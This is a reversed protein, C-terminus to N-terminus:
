RKAYKISTWPITGKWHADGSVEVGIPTAKFVVGERARITSVQQGKRDNKTVNLVTDVLVLESYDSNEAAPRIPTVPSQKSEAM